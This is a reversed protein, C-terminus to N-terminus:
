RIKIKKIIENIILFDRSFFSYGYLLSFLNSSKRRNGFTFIFLFFLYNKIKTLILYNHNIYIRKFKKKLKYLEIYRKIFLNFKENLNVASYNKKLLHSLSKILYLKSKIFSKDKEIDLLSKQIIRAHGVTRVVLPAEIKFIPGEAVLLSCPLIETNIANFDCKNRNIKLLSYRLIKKFIGTRMISYIPVTYNYFFNQLRDLSDKETATTLNYEASTVIKDLHKGIIKIIIAKGSAAVIKKNEKKNLFAICKKIGNSSIYDDDGSFICYKKKIYNQYKKFLEFSWGRDWIYDINLINSYSKIYIENLKKEATDSSDLILIHGKFSNKKYFELVRLVFISRNLTPIIISIDM